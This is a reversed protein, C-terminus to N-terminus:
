LRQWDSRVSIAGWSPETRREITLISNQRRLLMEPGDLITINSVYEGENLPNHDVTMRLVVREGAVVAPAGEGRNTSLGTIYVGDERWLPIGIILRRIDVNPVFSLHFCLKQDPSFYSTQSGSEDCWFAEFERLASKNYFQPELIKEIRKEKSPAGDLRLNEYAEIADDPTGRFVCRGSHLVMVEDCFARVDSMSHSVLVFSTQDRVERLRALCKQRFRFDGVSLVEDIFLVDPTSAMMIAFALRMKMGSSYTDLPADIADGLESFELISDYTEHLSTKSRGLAAGRLFINDAGSRTPEFGATLDIMSATQGTVKVVGHDPLIQGALMRLLTTKGSGNLGIIGLSKGRMLELNIDQLAWFDAGSLPKLQPPRPWHFASFLLQQGIRERSRAASRSYLKGLREVRLVVDDLM